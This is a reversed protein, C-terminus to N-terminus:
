NMLYEINTYLWKKILIKLQRLCYFYITQNSKNLVQFLFSNFVTGTKKDMTTFSRVIPQNSGESTSSEDCITKYEIMPIGNINVFGTCKSSACVLRPHDLFLIEVNNQSNTLINKKFVETLQIAQQIYKPIQYIAHTLISILQQVKYLSIIDHVPYPLCNNIRAILRSSEKVTRDWSQIYDKRYADHFRINNRHLALYCVSENDVFFSNTHIFSLEVNYECKYKNFLSRLLPFTNGPKFFTLRSNTFIFMINEITSKPLHRFLENVCYKFPITFSTENSKLFICIGNLYEYRSIYTMIQNINKIDQEIGRTDDVSPTDIFRLFRNGIRFIFSRCTQTFSNGSDNVNEDENRKGIYITKGEFTDPDTFCFSTSIPSQMKDNIAQELTNNM